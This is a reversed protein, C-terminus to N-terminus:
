PLQSEDDPAVEWILRARDCRVARFFKDRALYGAWVAECVTGPEVEAFKAVAQQSKSLQSYWQKYAIENPDPHGAARWRGIAEAGRRERSLAQCQSTYIGMTELAGCFESQSVLGAIGQAKASASWFLAGVLVAISIKNM